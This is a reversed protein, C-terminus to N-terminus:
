STFTRKALVEDSPTKGWCRIYWRIYYERNQLNHIRVARIKKRTKESCPKNYNPSKDGTKGYQHNKEGTQAEKMKKKTKESAHKGLNAERLKQKTKESVIRGKQSESLKRRHEESRNKGFESLKRRTEESIIRGKGAESMKKRTEESIIRKKGKWYRANNISIKRKTHSTHKLPWYGGNPEINYGNPFLTNYQEIFHQEADFAEQKTLFYELIERIFNESGFEQVARNLEAGSGLYGDDRNKTKHEGIYQMGNILNTTLYVFYFKGNHKVRKM